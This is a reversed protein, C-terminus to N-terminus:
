SRVEFLSRQESQHCAVKPARKRPVWRARAARYADTAQNARIAATLREILEPEDTDLDFGAAYDYFSGWFRVTGPFEPYVPGLDEEEHVGDETWVERSDRPEYAFNGYEEFRPDLTLRALREFLREIPELRHWSDSSNSRIVLM